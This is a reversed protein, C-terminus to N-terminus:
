TNDLLYAPDSYASEKLHDWQNLFRTRKETYRIVQCKIVHAQM